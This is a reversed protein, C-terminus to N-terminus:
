MDIVDAPVRHDIAACHPTLELVPRDGAASTETARCAAHTSHNRADLGGAVVNVSFSGDSNIPVTPLCLLAKDM